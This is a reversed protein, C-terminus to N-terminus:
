VGQRSILARLTQLAIKMDLALSRNKVYFLDYSLKDRTDNIAVAHHPHAKHYIQAWGSLGPKILHRANYYPVEEEYIKVLAPLEPRPGILSQDGKLVSWLQPLEDLRTLRIVRGVRTITQATKQGTGYVGQDNATMSRFKVIKITKGNKGVREQVVFLKGGDDLKIAIMIFPYLILSVIGVITAIVIDMARKFLDYARSQGVAVVSNEVLWRKGVLSLPIRDFVAEYLSSVDMVQVGSFILSYMSSMAGEIDPNRLDAILVSAGTKKVTEIIMASMKEPSHEPALKERFILGYKGDKNIEEYLDEVDDGSGIIVGTQKRGSVVVPFMISRWVYLAATSIIFYIFLNAKPAIAVPALYFFAIGFIVNIVQAQVILASVRSRMFAARKDYLGVAMGVIVFIVFLICFPGIHSFFLESDPVHGYRVALTLILSFVYALLDGVILLSTRRSMAIRTM